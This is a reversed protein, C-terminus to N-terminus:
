KLLFSTLKCPEFKSLISIHKVTFCLCTGFVMRSYCSQECAIIFKTITRDCEEISIKYHPCESFM